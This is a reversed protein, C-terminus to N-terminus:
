HRIYHLGPKDDCDDFLRNMEAYEEITKRLSISDISPMDVRCFDIYRCGDCRKNECCEEQMCDLLYFFEGVRMDNINKM